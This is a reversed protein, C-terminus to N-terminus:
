GGLLAIREPVTGREQIRVLKLVLSPGFGPHLILRGLAAAAGDAAHIRRDRTAADPACALSTAVQWAYDRARQLSFNAVAEDAGGAFGDLRRLLPWVKGLREQTDDVLAALVANIRDFDGRLAAISDGPAVGAAAIGLDLNIHANMGLLLHQLVVPWWARSADFAFDWALGAAHGRERASWAALYRNAFVVDLQEMRPGDDFLGRAIRSKVEVTVRRYLAAFYGDATGRMRSREIIQTLRELVDDITKAPEM